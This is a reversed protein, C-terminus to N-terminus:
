PAFVKVFVVNTRSELLPELITHLKHSLEKDLKNHGYSMPHSLRTSLIQEQGRGCGLISGKGTACPTIM